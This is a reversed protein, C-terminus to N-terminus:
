SSLPQPQCPTQRPIHVTCEVAPDYHVLFRLGFVSQNVISILVFLLFPVDFSHYLPSSNHDLCLSPDLYTRVPLDILSIGGEGTFIPLYPLCPRSSYNGVLWYVLYQVYPLLQGFRSDLGTVEEKGKEESSDAIHKDGCEGPQLRTFTAMAMFASRVNGFELCGFLQLGRPTFFLNECGWGDV